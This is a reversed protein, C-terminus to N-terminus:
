RQVTRRFTFDRTVVTSGARGVTWRFHSGKIKLNGRGKIHVYVGGSNSKTTLTTFPAKNPVPQLFALTDQHSQGPIKKVNSSLVM